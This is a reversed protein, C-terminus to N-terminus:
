QQQQIQQQQLEQQHLRIEAEMDIPPHYMFRKYIFDDLEDLTKQVKQFFEHLGQQIVDDAGLFKLDSVLKGFRREEPTNYEGDDTDALLHLYRDVRQLCYLISRPFS